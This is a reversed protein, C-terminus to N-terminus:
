RDQQEKLSVNQASLIKKKKKKPAPFMKEKFQLTTNLLNSHETDHYNFISHILDRLPLSHVTSLTKEAQESVSIKPNAKCLTIQSKSIQLSRNTQSTTNTDSSTM